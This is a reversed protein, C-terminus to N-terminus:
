HAHAGVDLAPNHGEPYGNWASVLGQEGWLDSRAHAADGYLAHTLEHALSTERWTWGPLPADVVIAFGQGAVGFSEHPCLGGQSCAQFDIAPRVDLTGSPAVPGHAYTLFSTIYTNTAGEDVPIGIYTVGQPATGCAGLWLLPLTLLTRHM